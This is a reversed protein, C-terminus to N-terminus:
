KWSASVLSSFSVLHSLLHILKWEFIAYCFCFDFSLNCMKLDCSLFCARSRFFGIFSTPLSWIISRGCLFQTLLQWSLYVSVPTRRYMVICDFRLPEFMKPVMSIRELCPYNSGSLTLWPVLESLLYCYDLSIKEIKLVIISHQTYENSDGRHPSELSYM